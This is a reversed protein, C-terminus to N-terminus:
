KTLWRQLTSKLEAQKVPKAVYDDMGAAVCKEKDGEMANATMAIITLRKGGTKQEHKRIEGTAVYGDMVPMQCDMLVLNFQHPQALRQLADQGNGALEYTLGMKELMKKAVAQNVPNDEVLLICGELKEAEAQQRQEQEQALMVGEPIAFGAEVWFCSGKGLESEVGLSGHMLTVLKRVIALGLGTGGYKRTTSGDAQTFANFLKRQAEDSIGIGTDIVEMRLRVSKEDLQLVKIVVRVEGRETFKIANTILNALIQRLRVPDGKIVAPLRDDVTAELKIGREEAKNKLLMRLEKIVQALNFPIYELTMKGAEIKSFDLIDNLLALLAEGSNYAISVYEHQTDDLKTDRLLQMTGLIGNMPTRIEHSMNALFESKARSAAEALEKAKYLEKEVRKRQEIESSLEENLDDSENRAQSLFAILSENHFRLELNSMIALNVRRASMAVVIGFMTSLFALVYYDEGLMVFRLVLPLLLLAAYTYYLRIIPAMVPVGGAAVGALVLGMTLQIIPQDLPFLFWAAFGWGASTLLISGLYARAYADHKPDDQPCAQERRMLLLRLVSIVTMVVLWGLIWSHPNQPWLVASIMLALILSFLNSPTASESVLRLQERWIQATHKSQELTSHKFFSLM